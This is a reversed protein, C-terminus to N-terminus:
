KNELSNFHHLNELILYVLCRVVIVDIIVLWECNSAGIDHSCAVLLRLSLETFIAVQKFRM